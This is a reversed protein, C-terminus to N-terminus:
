QRGLNGKTGTDERDGMGGTSGNDRWHGGAGGNCEQGGSGTDWTTGVAHGSVGMEGLVEM